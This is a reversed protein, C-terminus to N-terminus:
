CPIDGILWPLGRGLLSPTHSDIGAVTLCRPPTKGWQSGLPALPLTKGKDM